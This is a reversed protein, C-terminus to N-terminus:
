RGEILDRFRKNLAEFKDDRISKLSQVETDQTIVANQATVLDTYLIDLHAATALLGAHEREPHAVLQAKFMPLLPQVEDASRPIAITGRLGVLDWSENYESGFFPKFIDRCITLAERSVDVKSRVTARRDSALAKGLEYNDRALVLANHDATINAATNIVIIDNHVTAGNIAKQGLTLAETINKIVVQKM